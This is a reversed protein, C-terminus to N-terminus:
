DRFHIAGLYQTRGRNIYHLQRRGSTGTHAVVAGARTTPYSDLYRIIRPHFDTREEALLRQKM